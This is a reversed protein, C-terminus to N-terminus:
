NNTIQTATPLMFHGNYFDLTKKQINFQIRMQLQEIKAGIFENNAIQLDYISIMGNKFKKQAIALALEKLEVKKANLKEEALLAENKQILKQIEKHVVQEKQKMDVTAKLLN